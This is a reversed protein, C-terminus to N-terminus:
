NVTESFTAVPHGLGYPGEATVTVSGSSPLTLTVSAVGSSNTTTLVKTGSSTGNSLSGASTTFLVSAGTNTGGSAGAALTVSLQVTGGPPGSQAGSQTFTAAPNGVVIWGGETQTATGDSGTVTFHCFGPTNGATVTIEGPISPTITATTLTITGSCAPAGEYSDFVASTLNVNGSGSTIKPNLTVTGGAAMMTTDPNLDWSSVPATATTGTIVLLTASYPAFSQTASWPGSASAAITTPATSALTYSVSNSPTFGNFALQVSATNAPDKNLVLLTMQTGAANVAAYSSFVSPNGNNTDSVSIAGFGHHAADYNTFLKL